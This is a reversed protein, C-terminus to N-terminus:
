GGAPPVLASASHPTPQPTAAPRSLKTYQKLAFPFHRVKNNWDEHVLELDVPKDAFEERLAQPTSGTDCPVDSTEQVDPLGILKM